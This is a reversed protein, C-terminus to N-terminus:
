PDVSFDLDLGSALAWTEWVVPRDADFQAISPKTPDVEGAVGARAQRNLYLFLQWAFEHPNTLALRAAEPTGGPELNQASAVDFTAIAALVAGAAFRTAVYRM